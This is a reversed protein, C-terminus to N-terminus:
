LGLYSEVAAQMQDAAVTTKHRVQATELNAVASPVAVGSIEHLKTLAEFDSLGSQGMVAEVAVVPFKYPSATSAIVTTTEDGTATRYKQYVASAVATHPDEIYDSAEYVRKIESATEVETAYEAAFLELIAPDFDTLEYQGHQNLSKMLDATKEASNGLLHFILRELNSSVLIDMSPSSTVKFSRKKDYVHTKFFDTLVNNENSACILKGVPLGIQKAYYAALINGFNGTPVTFNIKDGAVIQGAKVLQAYAYVYYVIQPVLRGINMSNASSFQLKHAALRERLAADNFMRKVNTQADDFNGEIAVVHTNDGTQTTMQLEQVKSVGDKPYFVIIETGPVDAFGAMAAKGTDGSTATLIVIKNKLGHKKAATTMLHPLISLAMDKFAITAGHFLELNYQGNLKVLPAIEPTDFKSDYANNICDDLEQDTFDDLFASLILKAVEQYSADKLKTFDLEVQPYSIPTFLGGDTALGQLIAQSATVTNNADRTSQYVLTM